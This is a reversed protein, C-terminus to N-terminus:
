GFRARRRRNRILYIILLLVAVAGIGGLALLYPMARMLLPPEGGAQLLEVYAADVVLEPNGYSQLVYNAVDAIQQSTWQGAYAPMFFYDEETERQLGSSIVMVLNAASTGSTAANNVLSPYYFDDTGRADAGHCNACSSLFLQEGEPNPTVAPVAGVTGDPNMLALTDPDRFAFSPVDQGETRVPPVTRLFAAIAQLDDDNLYQLSYSVAEAMPGAAQAKGHANGQRLYQVIEEDSWGGIGSIPDSTINPVDWGGVNGGSLFPGGEAMLINRPSHCTNCHALATVLYEGRDAGGPQTTAADFPQNHGFLLNWGAMVYRINFPFALSTQLAPAQDIPEIESMIFAYLASIDEDSIRAYDAYPMGPYIMHLGPAVGHRVAREFQAETWGGIGFEVSPTINTSIMQGMPTDLVYGGAWELGEEHNTHCAACDAAVAVYRGREVLDPDFDQALVGMPILALTAIAPLALRNM